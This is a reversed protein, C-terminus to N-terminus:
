KITKQGFVANQFLALLLGDFLDEGILAISFSRRVLAAIATRICVM